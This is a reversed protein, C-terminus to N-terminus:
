EKVVVVVTRGVDGVVWRVGVRSEGRLHEPQHADRRHAGVADQGGAHGRVPWRSRYEGHGQEARQRRVRRRLADRCRRGKSPGGDQRGPSEM